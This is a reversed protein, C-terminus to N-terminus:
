KRSLEEAMQYIKAKLETALAKAEYKQGRMLFNWNPEIVGKIAIVKSDRNWSEKPILKTEHNGNNGVFARVSCWHWREIEKLKNLANTVMAQHRSLFADTIHHQINQTLRKRYKLVDGKVEQQPRFVIRRLEEPSKVRSSHAWLSFGMMTSAYKHNIYEEFAKLDAAATISLTHHRLRPIGTEEASLHPKPINPAGKLASYHSNSICFIELRSGEPMLPDYKKHLEKTISDNRFDTLISFWKAKATAADADAIRKRSEYSPRKHERSGSLRALRKDLKEAEEYNKEWIAYQKKFERLDYEDQKELYEVQQEVNYDESRTVIIAVNGAFREGYKQLLASVSSDTNARDSKAVVWLVDCEKLYETASKVRLQNTDSVGPLDTLTARDLVRSGKVGITANRVLPWMQPEKGNPKSCMLPDIFDRLEMATNAVYTEQHSRQDTPVSKTREQLRGRCMEVLHAVAEEPSDQCRNLFEGVAADSEFGPQDCFVACITSTATESRQRFLVTEDETCQADMRFNFHIYNEVQEQLMDRISDICFYQIRAGFDVRQGPLASTLETPM